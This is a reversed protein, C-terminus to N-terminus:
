HGFQCAVRRPLSLITSRLAIAAARFPSHSRLHPLLCYFPRCFGPLDQFWRLMACLLPLRCRCLSRRRSHPAPPSAHFPPRPLSRPPPLAFTYAAAPPPRAAAFRCLRRPPPPSHRPPSHSFAVRVAAPPPRAAHCRSSYIRRPPSIAAAAADAAADRAHANAAACIAFRHRTVRQQSNSAATTLLLYHRKRRASSAATAPAQLRVFAFQGLLLRRGPLSHLGPAPLRLRGAGPAGTGPGAGPGIGIGPRGPGAGPGGGLGWAQGPGLPLPLHFLVCRKVCVRPRPAIARARPLRAYLDRSAYIYAIAHCHIISATTSQPTSNPAPLLLRRSHAANTANNRTSSALLRRPRPPQCRAFRCRRGRCERLRQRRCCGHQRIHPPLLHCYVFLQLAAAAPPRRPTITRCYNTAATISYHSSLLNAAIQPMYLQPLPPPLTAIFLCVAAAAAFCDIFLLVAIFPLQPLALRFQCYIACRFHVRLRHTHQISVSIAAFPTSRHQGARIAIINVARLPSRCHPIAAAIRSYAARSYAGFTRAPPM